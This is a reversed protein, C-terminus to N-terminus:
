EDTDKKNKLLAIGSFFFILGLISLAWPSLTVLKTGFIGIVGLILGILGLGVLIAAIIKIM